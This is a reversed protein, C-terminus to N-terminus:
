QQIQHSCVQFPEKVSDKHSEAILGFTREAASAAWGM